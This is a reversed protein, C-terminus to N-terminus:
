LYVVECSIDRRGDSLLGTGLNVFGRFQSESRASEKPNGEKIHSQGSCSSIMCVIYAM